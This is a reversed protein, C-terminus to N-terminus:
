KKIVLNEIISYLKNLQKIESTVNDYKKVQDNKIINIKDLLHNDKISQNYKFYLENWIALKYLSFNPFLRPHKKLEPKYFISTYKNKNKMIDFWISKTNNQEEKYEKENNFLFSGYKNSQSEEALFLLFDKNYEFNAPFQLILQYLCDLFQIFVPAYLDDKQEKDKLIMAYQNSSRLNFQHGFGIWEKEILLAFGEITRFFSDELVQTLSSIQIVRDYGVKGVLLVSFNRKLLGSIDYSIRILNSIQNLWQTSEILSFIKKSDLFKEANIIKYYKQKLKTIDEIDAYLTYYQTKSDLNLSSLKNKNNKDIDVIMLSQNTISKIYNELEKTIIKNNVPIGKFGGCTWLSVKYYKSYWTISPLRNKEFFDSIVFYDFSKPLILSSPYSSCLEYNCNINTLQYSFSDIDHLLGQRNFENFCDYYYNLNKSNEKKFLKYAFSNYKNSPFILCDLDDKIQKLKNTNNISIRFSRMDRLNFELITVISYKLILAIPFQLLSKNIKSNVIEKSYFFVRYDTYGFYCKFKNEQDKIIEANYYVIMSCMEVNLVDEYEDIEFYDKIDLYIENMNNKHQIKPSIPLQVGLNLYPLTISEKENKFSTNLIAESDEDTTSFGTFINILSSFYSPSNKKTNFNNKNLSETQNDEQM